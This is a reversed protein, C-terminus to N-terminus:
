AWQKQQHISQQIHRNFENEMEEVGKGRHDYDYVYLHLEPKRSSFYDFLSIYFIVRIPRSLYSFIRYWGKEFSVPLDSISHIRGQPYLVVMNGPDSLIEATYQLSELASRTGKRISYAGAKNLFMRKELQEELMMIHIKRRFLEQNIYHALFGDWWSVHNGIMLIADGNDKVTHHIEIRSFDRRPMRRSYWTFFPYYFWHHRAKLIM